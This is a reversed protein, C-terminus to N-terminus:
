YINMLTDTLIKFDLFLSWNRIYLIDYEIKKELATQDEIPGHYGLSQALGTIGPKVGHRNNYIPYMAHYRINEQQMHPRPGVISMDGILVNVFQPLEDLHSRRLFRGFSTIRKDNVMATLTDSEENVFMTRLKLCYFFKGNKKNRKQVFFVPGTSDMKIFLALVPLLWSLLFALAAISLILDILRKAVKNKLKFLPSWSSDTLVDFGTAERMVPFSSNVANIYEPIYPEKLAPLSKDM